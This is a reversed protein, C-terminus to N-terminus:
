SSEVSPNIKFRIKNIRRSDVTEVEFTFNKYNLKEHPKPMEKTFELILGALTEAEGKIEEFINEEFGTAKYFDHLLTNGEFLYENKSIKTFFRNEEDFEDAIEGVIEELIDELTIIGSTGGYEDVVIAMHVKSKQFEELLDDIKKTEPVFFPQRMLPQWRFSVSKDLHALLDKIYLIGRVDDLTEKYVPIRSYGSERIVHLVEEFNFRVDISTVNLRSRMVESVAKNGFKVIGELIEKDESLEGRDTLKLAKSIEEISLDKKHRSLRKNVFSTSHILIYNIPYTIKILVNVFPAIKLAIKGPYHAAYVKPIIEGFLLIMFTIVVTQFIFGFIPVNSFDILSNTIHATLLVIAINLFNNGVLVAALLNEPNSLLHLVLHHKPKKSKKLEEIEKPELSFLAVESGSILASTLLLIIVVFIGILTETTFPNFGVGKLLDGSSFFTDAEL